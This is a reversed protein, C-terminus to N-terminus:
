GRGSEQMLPLLKDYYKLVLAINEKFQIPKATKLAAELEALDDKKETEQVTKDKKSDEGGCHLPQRRKQGPERCTWHHHHSQAPHGDRQRRPRQIRADPARWIEEARAPRGDM